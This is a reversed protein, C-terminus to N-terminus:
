FEGRVGVVVSRGMQPAIGKLYSTHLRIVEDLLNTAQVFATLGRRGSGEIRWSAEADIRTYSPTSSELSATRPQAFAHIASLNVRFAGSGADVNAGLRAPSIRPLNEGSALRGRTMDGFVRVGFTGAAPRYSWEAEVGRFRAAAQSYRQVLFEGDVEPEGEHGIRDPLGDGDADVSAAYVYDQIRNAFFNMKWRLSGEAKRLTVDINRSVEKRLQPDGIDFTATAHHAGDSYLEEVSPARQAQTANLAVRYDGLRLVVGVAPTVLRFDRAPLEGEPRRAESEARIGADLTWAGLEKEEVLFVARSRSSSRPLIAEEGTAALRAGQLQVGFTGRLAGAHQLELRAERARNTFTTAVEGTAKVELHRYDSYGARMRMRNFGPLPEAAEAAVEYRKQDMVIRVGEETPVGYDSELRQVGAGAFGGSGFWSAGVGAGRMDVDSNALRGLPTDYDATRRRFADLHFAAAGTGADLAVSGTRERSAGGFRSEVEGSAEQVRERPITKSVVNVVGGIAGSGYLLSAPGRLIEIQEARLSETTVAHDPSVSSADGTGIGNELVRVRPGDLGRIIPRGAGAGFASSQVGTEQALTDGISAARKRRLEDESLVSAPQALEAEGRGLPSATVTIKEVSKVQQAWSPASAALASAVASALLSHKM